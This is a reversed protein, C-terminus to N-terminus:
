CFGKTALAAPCLDGIIGSSGAQRSNSEPYNASPALDQRACAASLASCALVLWFLKRM